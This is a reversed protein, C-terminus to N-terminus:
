GCGVHGVLGFFGCVLVWKSASVRIVHMVVSAIMGWMLGMGVAVSFMGFVGLFLCVNGGVFACVDVVCAVFCPLVCLFCSVCLLLVSSVM